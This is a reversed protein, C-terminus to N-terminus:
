PGYPDGYEILVRALRQDCELLLRAARSVAQKLLSYQKEHNNELIYKDIKNITKKQYNNHCRGRGEREELNGTHPQLTQTPIDQVQRKGGTNHTETPISPNNISTHTDRGWGARHYEM